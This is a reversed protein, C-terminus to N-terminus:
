PSERAQEGAREPERKSARAREPERNSESNAYLMRARSVLGKSLECRRQQAAVSEAARYMEFSLLSINLLTINNFFSISGMFQWRYILRVNTIFCLEYTPSVNLSKSKWIFSDAKSVVEREKFQWFNHRFLKPPFHSHFIDARSDSHPLSNNSSNTWNDFDSVANAVPRAQDAESQHVPSPRVQHSKGKYFYLFFLVFICSSIIFLCFCLCQSVPIKM